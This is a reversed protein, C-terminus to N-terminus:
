HNTHLTSTCTYLNNTKVLKMLVIIVKMCTKRSAPQSAGGMNNGEAFISCPGRRFAVGEGLLNVLMGSLGVLLCSRGGVLYLM